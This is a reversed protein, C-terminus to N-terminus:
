LTCLACQLMSDTDTICICEIVPVTLALQSEPIVCNPISELILVLELESRWGQDGTMTLSQLNHSVKTSEAMKKNKSVRVPM